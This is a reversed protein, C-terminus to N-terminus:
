KGEKAADLAASNIKWKRAFKKAGADDTVRSFVRPHRLRSGQYYFDVVWSIRWCDHEIKSVGHGSSGTSNFRSV